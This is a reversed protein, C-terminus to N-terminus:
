EENDDIFKEFDIFIGRKEFFENIDEESMYTLLLSSSFDPDLYDADLEWLERANSTTFPEDYEWDYEIYKDDESYDEWESIPKINDINEQMWQVNEPTNLRTILNDIRPNISLYLEGLDDNSLERM